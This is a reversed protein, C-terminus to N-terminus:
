IVSDHIADIVNAAFLRARVEFQLLVRPPVAILVFMVHGENGLSEAL